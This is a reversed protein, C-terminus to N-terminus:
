EDVRDVKLANAGDRSGCDEGQPVKRHGLQRRVGRGHGRRRVRRRVREWVQTWVTEEVKGIRTFRDYLLQQRLHADSDGRSAGGPGGEDLEGRAVAHAVDRSQDGLDRVREVERGGLVGGRM